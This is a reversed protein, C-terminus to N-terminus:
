GSTAAPCSVAVCSRSYFVRHYYLSSTHESVCCVALRRAPQSCLIMVISNSGRSSVLYEYWIDKSLKAYWAVSDDFM